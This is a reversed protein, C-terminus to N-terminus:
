SAQVFAKVKTFYHEIQRVIDDADYEAEDFEMDGYAIAKRMVNLDHLLDSVDPLHHKKHLNVAQDAKGWHTRIPTEGSKLATARILAELCYLGYTGIDGWDPDEPDELSERVKELHREALKFFHRPNTSIKGM